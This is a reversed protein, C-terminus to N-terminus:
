GIRGSRSDERPTEKMQWSSPVRDACVARASGAQIVTLEPAPGSFRNAAYKLVALLMTLSLTEPDDLACPFPADEASRSAEFPGTLDTNSASSVTGSPRVSAM